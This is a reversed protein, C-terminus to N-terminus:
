PLYVGNSCTFCSGSNIVGCNSLYMGVATCANCEKCASASSAASATTSYKGSDCTTCSSQGVATSYFGMQCASCTVIQSSSASSFRGSYGANCAWDCKNVTEGSSSTYVSYSPKNTCQECVTNSTATCATIYQGISCSSTCPTCSSQGAATTYSGTQCATCTNVQSSPSSSSSFKGSYGANCAWDCNNATGGSSTYYSALSPKNTCAVCKSDSTATCAAIYQGTSCTITSCAICSASNKYYGPNCAWDCNNAITGSSSTYTSFLPKNTCGTCISNSTATCATIYQGTSACSTTCTACVTLGAMTSYTGAQCATCSSFTPSRGFYGANCAWDCNDVGEFSSTYVSNLLPKNTCATCRSDSTATCAVIYQGIPCSSVTCSTCSTASNSYYGPTCAWTCDAVFLSYAPKGVCPTCTADATSTCPVIVNGAPCSLASCSTCMSSGAVKNFGSQCTACGSAGALSFTGISCLTCVSSADTSYTGALCSRCTASNIAGNVTSLKGALCQKCSSAAAGAYTGTSCQTCLSAREGSYTGAACPLCTYYNSYTGALCPTCSTAAAGAYTGTSCQTCLSAMDASYTGAACTVCASYISYSGALCPTCSTAAEGTSYTGETCVACASGPDVSYTGASCSPCTFIDSYTGAPCKMCSSAAESNGYTGAECVTCSMAKNLSYKGPVCIDCTWELSYYGATCEVCWGSDPAPSYTGAECYSCSSAGGTSYSYWPCSKCDYAQQQGVITSYKGAACDECYAWGWIKYKGAPCSQCYTQSAAPVQGSPCEMCYSDDIAGTQQITYYTEPPCGKCATAYIENTYKGVECDTCIASTYGSAYKGSDCPYCEYKKGVWANTYTGPGCSICYVANDGSYKGDACYVCAGASKAGGCNSSWGATCISTTACLTCYGSGAAAAYKGQPCATCATNKGGTQYTGAACTICSAGSLYSGYGCSTATGEITFNSCQNLSSNITIANSISVVGNGCLDCISPKIVVCFSVFTDSGTNSLRHIPQHQVLAQMAAVHPAAFSTGLGFAVQLDTEQANVKLTMIPDVADGGPSAVSILSGRNSYGALAGSRTSAAVAVVGKCNAPFYGAVDQNNNGAAAIVVAGLSIALDIASQLYSPCEAQGALSLSLIKAPSPNVPVGNIVGGAAWVIADTVDSAYGMKCLGLVRVPMVTCNQAVGRMGFKNDHRAALISAVRTGHWSPYPCGDGWDGPDTADPDRGDWDLALNEDSIFDYGDAIHLFYERAATALGTDIVAVVVDPTSNSIPWINQAHISYPESDKLNWQTLPPVSGGGSYDQQVVISEEVDVYENSESDNYYVPEPLAWDSGSVVDYSGVSVLSDVEVREVALMAGRIGEEEEDLEFPRGLDLVLRRGYQKVLTANELLGANSPLNAARTHFTIVLRSSTLNQNNQSHIQRIFSCFVLLICHVTLSCAM